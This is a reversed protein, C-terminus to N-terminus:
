AAVIGPAKQTGIDFLADKRAIRKDAKIDVAHPLQNIERRRPAPRAPRPDLQADAAFM